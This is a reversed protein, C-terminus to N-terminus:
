WGLWVLTWLLFGVRVVRHLGRRRSIVDQLFLIVTLAALGAGLVAIRVQHASWIAQWGLAKEATGIDGSPGASVTGPSARSSAPAAAAKVV